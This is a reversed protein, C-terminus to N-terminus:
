KQIWENFDAAAFKGDGNHDVTMMYLYYDNANEDGPQNALRECLKIAAAAAARVIDKQIATIKKYHEPLSKHRFIFRYKSM